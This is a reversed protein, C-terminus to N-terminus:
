RKRKRVRKLNKSPGILFLLVAFSVHKNHFQPPNNWSGYQIISIILSLVEYNDFYCLQLKWDISVTCYPGESVEYIHCSYIQIRKNCYLLTKYLLVIKYLLNNSILFSHNSCDNNWSLKCYCVFTSIRSKISDTMFFNYWAM